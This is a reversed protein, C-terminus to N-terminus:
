MVTGITALFSTYKILKLTAITEMEASFSSTLM